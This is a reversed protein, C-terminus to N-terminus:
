IVVKQLREFETFCEILKRRMDAMDWPKLIFRFVQSSNIAEIVIDQRNHSTTLMRVINPYSRRCLELFDTGSKDSPFVYDSVIVAVESHKDQLIQLAEEFNEAMLIKFEDGFYVRFANLTNREDDVFLIKKMAFM